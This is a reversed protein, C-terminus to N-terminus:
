REIDGAVVGSGGSPAWNRQEPETVLWRGWDRYPARPPLSEVERRIREWQVLDASADIVHGDNDVRAGASLTALELLWGPVPAEAAPPAPWINTMQGRMTTALFRGDPSFSMQNLRPNPM